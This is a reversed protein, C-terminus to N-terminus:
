LSILDGTAGDCELAVLREQEWTCVMSTPIIVRNTGGLVKATCQLVIIVVIVINRAIRPLSSCKITILLPIVQTM